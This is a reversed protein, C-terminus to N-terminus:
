GTKRWNAFVDALNSRIGIRIPVRWWVPKVEPLFVNLPQATAWRSEENYCRLCNCCVTIDPHPIHGGGSQPFRYGGGISTPSM